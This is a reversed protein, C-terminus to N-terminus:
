MLFLVTFIRTLSYFNSIKNHLMKEIAKMVNVKYLNLNNGIGRLISINVVFFTSLVATM